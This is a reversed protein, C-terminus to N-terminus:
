RDLRRRLAVRVTGLVADFEDGLDARAGYIATVLGSWARDSGDARLAELADRSAAPLRRGLEAVLALREEEGARRDHDAADRQGALKALVVAAMFAQTRAYPDEIAVGITTRMSVAMRRLLEPPSATM